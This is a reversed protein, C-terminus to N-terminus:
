YIDKDIKKNLFKMSLYLYNLMSWCTFISSIYLMIIGIIEILFNLKCLLFFISLMQTTTKIKGIFSVKIIKGYGIQAMWERLASIIIERIIMILSPLTVWWIHFNEIIVILSIVIIMKDAVPDLFAGFNTIKQMKRALFGDIWDTIAAIIFIIANTLNHWYSSFIPIYFILLFLPILIIRFLTICTPTNFLM